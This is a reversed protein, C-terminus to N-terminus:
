AQGLTLTDAAEGVIGLGKAIAVYGVLEPGISGQDKFGTVFIGKIDATTEQFGLSRIVFKVADERTVAAEPNKERTIM